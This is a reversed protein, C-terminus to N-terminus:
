QNSTAGGCAGGLSSCEIIDGGLSMRASGSKPRDRLCRQENRNHNRRHHGQQTAPSIGLSLLFTTLTVGYAMGLAGDVMQAAFGAIVFVLIADDM